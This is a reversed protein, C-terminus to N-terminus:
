YESGYFMWYLYAETGSGVKGDVYQEWVAKIRPTTTDGLNSQDDAIDQRIMSLAKQMQAPARGDNERDLAQGKLWEIFSSQYRYPISFAKVLPTAPAPAVISSWISADSSLQILPSTTVNTNAFQILQLVTTTVVGSGDTALTFTIANQFVSVSLPTAPTGTTVFSVTLNYNPAVAVIQIGNIAAIPPTAPTMKADIQITTTKFNPPYLMIKNDGVPAWLRVPSNTDSGDDHNPDMRRIQDVTTKKLIVNNDQDRIDIIDSAAVYYGLTFQDLVYVDNGSTVPMGFGTVYLFSWDHMTCFKFEALPLEYSLYTQFNTSSNGIYAQLLAIVESGSYGTLSNPM